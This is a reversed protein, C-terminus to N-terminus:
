KNMLERPSANIPGAKIKFGANIKPFVTHLHLLILGEDQKICNREFPVVSIESGVNYAPFVQGSLFGATRKHFTQNAKKDIPHFLNWESIQFFSHLAPRLGWEIENKEHLLLHIVGLQYKDNTRSFVNKKPLVQVAELVTSSFRFAFKCIHFLTQRGYHSYKDWVTLPTM